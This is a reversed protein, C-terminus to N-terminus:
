RTPSSSAPTAPRRCATFLTSARRRASPWTASGGNATTFASLLDGLVTDTLSTVTVPDTTATSTNTVTFRYTLTQDATGEAITGSHSKTVTIAPAVDQYTVADSATATSAATSDDDHASVTVTNAIVVGANGTAPVSYVVDFSKSAGFALTASGGNATTFASLLDGLVTDTLSTVTVPDTTATSTNTVTFRYTLTQDATGEDITGSHSKTVTIAPAVDQYTVADSATATSAATSDDDHASVTVTNAIVVGANGTAPVSYVVDFSKSAGFALTASGGNATTFASLLDGLVTDTLSTVTVPDTTATSTNTVTFRYTLTQDATGEAIVGTHSKTVTIAPAVDQYTVADSATATSAATSDDDHASVTVTNAIVVGANGTAPVNYVVDFSKSAGFALTASGGNATTFASLLDGLVTDTLSTVTVPDTTATSTNTM